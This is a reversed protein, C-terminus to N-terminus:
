ETYSLRAVRKLVALRRNISANALKGRQFSKYAKAVEHIESLPRGEVWDALAYANSETRFRAKQRSVDEILWKQIAAGILVQGSSITRAERVLKAELEKAEKRTESTRHVRSGDRQIGVHWKGGAKWVSM